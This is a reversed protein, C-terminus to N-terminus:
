GDASWRRSPLGSEDNGPKVLCDLPEHIGPDLGPM